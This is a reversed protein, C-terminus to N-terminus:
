SSSSSSTRACLYRCKISFTLAGSSEMAIIPGSDQEVIINESKIRVEDGKGWVFGGKKLVLPDRMTKRPSDIIRGVAGGGWSFVVYDLGSSNGKGIKGGCLGNKNFFVDDSSSLSHLAPGRAMEREFRRGAAPGVSRATAEHTMIKTKRNSIIAHKLRTNLRKAETKKM